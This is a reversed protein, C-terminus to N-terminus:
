SDHFSTLKHHDHNGDQQRGQGAGEGGRPLFWLLRQPAFGIEIVACFQKAIAGHTM